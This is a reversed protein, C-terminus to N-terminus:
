FIFLAIIFFLFPIQKNIIYLYIDLSYIDVYRSRYKSIEMITTPFYQFSYLLEYFCGIIENYLFLKRGKQKEVNQSLDYKSIM